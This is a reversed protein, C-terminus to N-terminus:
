RGEKLVIFKKKNENTFMAFDAELSTLLGVYGRVAQQSGFGTRKKCRYAASNLFDNFQVKGDSTILESLYQETIAYNKQSIEKESMCESSSTDADVFDDFSVSENHDLKAKAILKLKPNKIKEINCHQEALALNELRNDDPNDNLHELIVTQNTLPINCYLCNFGGDRRILFPIIRRREMNTPRGRRISFKNFDSLM